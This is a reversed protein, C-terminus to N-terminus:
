AGLVSYMCYFCLVCTIQLKNWTEVLKLKMAILYRVLYSYLGCFCGFVTYFEIFFQMKV